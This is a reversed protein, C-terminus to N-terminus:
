YAESSSIMGSSHTTDEEPLLQQFEPDHQVALFCRTHPITIEKEERNRRQEERNNM